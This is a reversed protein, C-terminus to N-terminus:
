FTPWRFAPLRATSPSSDRLDCTRRRSRSGRSAAESATCPSCRVITLDDSISYSPTKYIAESPAAASRFAATPSRLLMYDEIYSFTKIGIDPASFGTPEHTRHIDTYNYAFRIANVTTNSLVM